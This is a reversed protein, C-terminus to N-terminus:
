GEVTLVPAWSTFERLEHQRDDDRVLQKVTAKIKGDEVTLTEIKEYVVNWIKM